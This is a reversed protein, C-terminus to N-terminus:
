IIMVVESLEIISLGLCVSKNMLIETKENRNSIFKRHFVKYYSFKASVLYNMRRETAVLKIDRRKRENEM